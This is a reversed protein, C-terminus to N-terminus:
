HRLVCMRMNERCRTAVSAFPPGPKKWVSKVTTNPLGGGQDTGTWSRTGGVKDLLVYQLSDGRQWIGKCAASADCAVQAEAFTAYGNINTYDANHVAETTYTTEPEAAGGAM